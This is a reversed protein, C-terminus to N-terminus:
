RTVRGLDNWFGPYSVGVCDPDDIRLARGTLAGLIGFAMAIRHDGHTVIGTDRVAAPGRVVLGDPLEDADVGCARLNSVMSAIRDSEKVRLESAGTVRTEGECVAALAAIMPIEDVLAPVEDADVEGARLSGASVVVDGIVEGASEEVGTLEVRAGIRQLYRLFGTRHTNLLLRPIRLSGEGAAAALALFFAASSPDGPVVFDVPRLEDVPTLTIGADTVQIPVGAVALMRETHDRTAIAERVTVPIGGCLGALLIASKVQASAVPSAWTIGHLAGGSLRLPLCGASGLWEVRAGMAELPTTVRQM